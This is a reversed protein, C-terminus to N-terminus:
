DQTDDSFYTRYHKEYQVVTRSPNSAGRVQASGQGGSSLMPKYCTTTHDSTSAGRVEASGQGDSSLMPKYCTATHDSSLEMGCGSDDWIVESWKLKRSGTNCNSSWTIIRRYYYLQGEVDCVVCLCPWSHLVVREFSLTVLIWTKQFAVSRWQVPPKRFRERVNRTRGWLDLSREDEVAQGVCILTSCEQLVVPAVSRRHWM